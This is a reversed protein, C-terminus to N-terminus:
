RRSSGVYDLIRRATQLGGWDGASPVCLAGDRRRPATSCGLWLGAEGCRCGLVHTLIIRRASCRRAVAVVRVVVHRPCAVACGV